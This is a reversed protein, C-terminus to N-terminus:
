AAVGAPVAEAADQTEVHLLSGSYRPVKGVVLQGATELTSCGPSIVKCNM